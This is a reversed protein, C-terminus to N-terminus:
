AIRITNKYEKVRLQKLESYYLVYGAKIKENIESYEDLFDSSSNWDSDMKGM